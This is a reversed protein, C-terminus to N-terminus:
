TPSESVAARFSQLEVESLGLAEALWMDSGEGESHDRLDRIGVYRLFSGTVSTSVSFSRVLARVVDSNLVYALRRAEDGSSCPIVYLKHDAIMEKGSVPAAILDSAIERVVVKHEALVATTVSYIGLWDPGTPDFNRFRRRGQLFRQFRTAFEVAQPFRETAERENLPTSVHDDDHFLLVGLEPAVSDPAVDQGRVLLRVAGSEVTGEEHPLAPLRGRSRDNRIRVWDPGRDLIDVYLIGNAGRTDIGKRVVDLYPSARRLPRSARLAGQPMVLLPSRRDSPDAPEAGLEHRVVLELAHDLQAGFPITATTGRMWLVTPIQESRPPNREALVISTRNAADEFVALRSLDEIQVFSYESEPPMFRGRFGRGALESQFVSATILFALRGGDRLYRDVCRSVFLMSLDLAVRTSRQRRGTPVDPHLRYLQWLDENERRYTEPLTEWSVWPPNGVIADFVGEFTPALANTILNWWMGDRDAVHIEALKSYLGGLRDDFGEVGWPLDPMAEQVETLAEETTRGTDALGTLLHGIAALSQEDSVERPIRWEGEATRLRLVDGELLGGHRPPSISDALFVPLVVPAAARRVLPAIALLYNVRAAQVALPSLDFGVINRTLAALVEAPEDEGARQLVRTLLEVLFTGSGCAPDLVRTNHTLPNGPTDIMNIVYAALWDPTYFEGLRHRIARPVLRQYLGKFVDRAATPTIEVVEASYEEVAAVLTELAALLGPHRETVYWSFVGPEIVNSARTGATLAGSELKALGDILTEETRLETVLQEGTAGELVVLAFLRAVLAFYTQLAFLVYPAVAEDGAVGLAECLDLWEPLDSAPGFGSANGIDLRWQEFLAGTRPSGGDILIETLAAVTTSAADSDRGFDEELNEATLGRGAALSELTDVLARLTDLDVRVPRQVQWDNREATVYVIWTGDFACGALRELPLGTEEAVGRLYQQVQSVAHRTGSHMVSPRLAGPPEFEIVFRNFIADLRGRSSLPADLSAAAEEAPVDLHVEARRRARAGRERLAAELAPEVADRLAAEPKVGEDKRAIGEQIAAYLLDVATLQKEQEPHPNLTRRKTNTM